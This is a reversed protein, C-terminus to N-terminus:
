RKKSKVALEAPTLANPPLSASMGTYSFKQIRHAPAVEATYLNGHSDAAIKHIGAFDGPAFSRKGFQYLVKLKKRDIVLVHSNGYDAAYLFKQAEGPSFALGSVSEMAPGARNIFMQRLYKGEPTFLQIRRNTRDVVYLIGDNSLLAGHVPSSFTPWGYGEGNICRRDNRDREGVKRPAPGGNTGGGGSGPVNWVPGGFAGWMRKFGFTEADFVILRRNGYGDAVYLENAKSDVYLGGPKNVNKTDLNGKSTSRGGMQRIFKGKSTFKLMMDDSRITRSNNPSSGSIFVNNEPDVFICHETDPWDYGEHPGGWAQVVKGDADLEIVPPAAKKGPPVVMQPSRPRHILWVHDKTDVSVMSVNGLVWSAPLKLWTPDVKFAPVAEGASADETTRTLDEGPASRDASDALSDVLHSFIAGNTMAKASPAVLLVGAVAGATGAAASLLERRTVGDVKAM